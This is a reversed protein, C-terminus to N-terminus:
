KVEHEEVIKDKILYLPLSPNKFLLLAQICARGIIQSRHWFGTPQPFLDFIM